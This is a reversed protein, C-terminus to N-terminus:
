LSCWWGTVMGADHVGWPSSVLLPFSVIHTCTKSYLGPQGLVWSERAETEQFLAPIKSTCQWERLLNKTISSPLRFNQIRVPNEATENGPATSLRDQSVTFATGVGSRKVAWNMTFKQPLAMSAKISLKLCHSTSSGRGQKTSWTPRLNRHKEQRQRRLTSNCTMTHRHKM